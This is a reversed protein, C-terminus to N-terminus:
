AWQYLPVYHSYNVLYTYLTLHSSVWPVQSKNKRQRLNNSVFKLFSKSKFLDAAEWFEGEKPCMLLQESLFFFFFFVSLVLRSLICCGIRWMAFWTANSIWSVPEWGEVGKELLQFFKDKWFAPNQVIGWAATLWAKM